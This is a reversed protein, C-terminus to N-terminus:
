VGHKEGEREVERGRERIFLYIFLYIFHKEESIFTFDILSRAVNTVEFGERHLNVVAAKPATLLSAICVFQSQWTCPRGLFEPFCVTYACDM